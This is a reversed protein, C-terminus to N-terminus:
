NTHEVKQKKIIRYINRTSLKFRRAAREVLMMPTDACPNLRLYDMIKADRTNRDLKNM